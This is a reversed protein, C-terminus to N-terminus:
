FIFIVDAADRKYFFINMKKKKKKKTLKADQLESFDLREWSTFPSNNRFKGLYLM